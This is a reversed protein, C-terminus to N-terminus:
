SKKGVEDWVVQQLRETKTQIRWNLTEKIINKYINVSYFCKKNLQTMYFPSINCYYFFILIVM